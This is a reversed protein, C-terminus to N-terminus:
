TNVAIRNNALCIICYAAALERFAMGITMAVSESMLPRASPEEVSDKDPWTLIAYYDELQENVDRDCWHRSSLELTHSVKSHMLGSSDHQSPTWDNEM